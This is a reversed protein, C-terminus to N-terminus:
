GEDDPIDDDQAATMHCVNIGAQCRSPGITAHLRTFLDPRILLDAEAVLPLLPEFGGDHVLHGRWQRGARVSPPM